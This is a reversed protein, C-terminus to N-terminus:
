ALAITPQRESRPRPVFRPPEAELVDWPTNVLEVFLRKQERLAQLTEPSRPAAKAMDALRSDSGGNSVNLFAIMVWTAVVGAWAAPSPWLLRRMFETLAGTARAGNSEGNVCERIVGRRIADLKTEASEHRQLLLEKPTKM